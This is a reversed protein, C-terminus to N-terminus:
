ENHLAYQWAGAGSGKWDISWLTDEIHQRLVDAEDRNDLDALLRRGTVFAAAMTLFNELGTAVLVGDEATPDDDEVPCRLVHGTPGDLVVYGGMWQGLRHFPGDDGPQEPHDEPWEIEQLFDPHSPQLALGQDDFEPLGDETLIRRATPDTLDEPLDESPMTVYADTGYLDALDRPSPAPAGAPTTAVTATLTGLLPERSDPDSFATVPADPHPQLALIGGPGSLVLPAPRGPSLPTGTDLRVNLLSELVGDVTEATDAAHHLERLSAPGPTPHEGTAWALDARADAPFDDDAPWPGALLTGSALDWGHLHDGSSLVAPRGQWRVPYPTDVPGPHLYAPHCGGPPRWHTWLTTWALRIGSREIGEALATDARATAMLHLWAAWTPQDPRHVGYMGLHVADAAPNNGPLSGDHACHAADVLADPPLQAVVTGDTLLADLVDTGAQAAHMAIGDAAYRGVPGSAAWGDPHRLAPAQERLWTVLHRGVAAPLEPGYARRIADATGEDRFAVHGDACHLHDPFRRALAALEDDTTGDTPEGTATDPATLGAARAATILERWVALPVRRPESFALARVPAPLAAPDPPAAGGAPDALRLTISGRRQKHDGPVALVTGLGSILRLRDALHRVVLEPQASRRTPGASRAHDILVLHDRGLKRVRGGWEFAYHCGALVGLEDLLERLLGEASKGAADLLVSGPVRRHVERVVAEAAGHDGDVALHVLSADDRHNEWWDVVRDAAQDPPLLPQDATPETM